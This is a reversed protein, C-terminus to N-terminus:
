APPASTAFLSQLGSWLFKLLVGIGFGMGLAFVLVPLDAALLDGYGRTAGDIPILALLAISLAAGLTGCALVIIISGLRNM